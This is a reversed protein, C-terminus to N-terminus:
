PGLWQGRFVLRDLQPVLRHSFGGRDQQRAGGSILTPLYTLFYFPTCSAWGAEIRRGVATGCCTGRGLTRIMPHISFNLMTLIDVKFVSHM